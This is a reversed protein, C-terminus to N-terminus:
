ARSRFRRLLRAIPHGPRHISDQGTSIPPLPSLGNATLLAKDGGELVLCSLTGGLVAGTDIGIRNARVEVRPGPTHGHIIVAEFERDSDLFPARIWLKAEVNQEGLAREPDIGAHVFFYDGSRFEDPLNKLFIRHAEPIIAEASGEAGFSRLFDPLAVGYSELTEGGGFRLWLERMRRGALGEGALGEIFMKEHNGRLCLIRRDEAQRKILFDITGRSDPGRDVYDGLHIIRWDGIPRDGLDTAIRDHLERLQDTCGHVDGIAYLRMGHPTRADALWVM